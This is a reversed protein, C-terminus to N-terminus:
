FVTRLKPDLVGSERGGGWTIKQFVHPNGAEATHEFLLMSYGSAMFPLNLSCHYGSAVLTTKFFKFSVKFGKCRTNRWLFLLFFKVDRSPGRPVSLILVLGLSLGSISLRGFHSQRRPRGSLPIVAGSPGGPCRWTPIGILRPKVLLVGNGELGQNPCGRFHNQGLSSSMQKTTKQQNKKVPVDSFM